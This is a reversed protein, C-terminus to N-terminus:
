QWHLVLRQVQGSTVEGLANSAAHTFPRHSATLRPGFYRPIVVVHTRPM